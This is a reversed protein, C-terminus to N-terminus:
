FSKGLYVLFQMPFPFNLGNILVFLVNEWFLQPIKNRNKLFPPPSSKEEEALQVGSYANSFKEWFYRLLKHNCIYLEKNNLYKCSQLRARKYVDPVTKIHM